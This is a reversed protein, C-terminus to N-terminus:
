INMLILIIFITKLSINKESLVPNGINGVLRVDKKQDKLIKFLITATTSKGNTGTITINKNNFYYSNFIDLDTIIKKKNKIFFNRHKSKFIDIGPSIVIFDFKKKPIDKSEIKKKLLKLNKYQNNNDDYVSVINNKKLFYFSSIGSKGLGYILIRKNVFDIKNNTM